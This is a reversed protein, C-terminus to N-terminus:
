EGILMIKSNISVKIWMNDWNRILKRAVDKVKDKVGMVKGILNKAGGLIGKGANIIGDTLKRLFGFVM